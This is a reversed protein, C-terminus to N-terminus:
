YRAETVLRFGASFDSDPTPFGGYDRFNSRAYERNQYFSGGRIVRFVYGTTARANRLRHGPYAQYWSATWERANGCMGVVGYVSKDKETAPAYVSRTDGVGSELTNCIDPDFTNGTPYLNPTAHLDSQGNNGNRVMWKLGGRAALEWELETPLRKGSWQAYAQADAFSAVTIPHDGKGAPYEGNRWASPYSHGTKQCFISYERNTVEYKDMYFAQLEVVHQGDRYYFYPNFNDRTANDGQGFVVIDDPIYVMIKHDVSHRISRLARHHTSPASATAPLYGRLRGYLGAQYGITLYRRAGESELVFTGFLLIEFGNEPRVRNQFEIREPMFRGVLQGDRDRLALASHERMFFARIEAQGERRYIPQIPGVIRLTGRDKQVAMVEGYAVFVERDGTGTAIAGQSNETPVEVNEERSYAPNAVWLLLLAVGVLWISAPSVSRRGPHGGIRSTGPFLSAAIKSLDSKM